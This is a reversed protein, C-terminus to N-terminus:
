WPAAHLLSGVAGVVEAIACPKQISPYNALEPHAAIVDSRALGSMWVCPLGPHRAEIRGLLEPGTVHPMLLDTIVLDPLRTTSELFAWAARGDPFAWVVFGARELGRCVGMRVRADDEVVVIASAVRRIYYRTACKDARPTPAVCDRKSHRM